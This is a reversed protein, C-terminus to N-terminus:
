KSTGVFKIILPGYAFKDCVEDGWINNTSFGPLGTRRILCLGEKKEIFM